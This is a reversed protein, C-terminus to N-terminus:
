RMLSRLKREELGPKIVQGTLNITCFICGALKAPEAGAAVLVM